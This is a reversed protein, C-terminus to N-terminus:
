CCVGGVASGTQLSFMLLADHLSLTYIETRSVYMVVHVSLCVCVVRSVLTVSTCVCVCVSVCVCVCVCVCVTCPVAGVTSSTQLSLLTSYLMVPDIYTFLTM